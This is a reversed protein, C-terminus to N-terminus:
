LPRTRGAHYDALAENALADLHGADADTALQRDWAQARFESYWLDFDALQAPTLKALALEIEQISSM